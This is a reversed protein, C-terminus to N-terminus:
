AAKWSRKVHSNVLNDFYLDKLCQTKKFINGKRIKKFNIKCDTYIQISTALIICNLKLNCSEM